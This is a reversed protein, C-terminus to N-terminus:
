IESSRFHMAFTDYLRRRLYMYLNALEISHLSIMLLLTKAAVLLWKM